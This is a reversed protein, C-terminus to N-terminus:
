GIHFNLAFESLQIDIRAQPVVGHLLIGVDLERAGVIDVGCGRTIVRRQLLGREAVAVVDGVRKVDIGVDPGHTGVVGKRRM